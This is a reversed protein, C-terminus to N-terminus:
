HHLPVCRLRYWAENAHLLKGEANYEFVGVDSMEMMTQISEWRANLNTHPLNRFTAAKDRKWLEGMVQARSRTFVPIRGNGMGEDEKAEEGLRQQDQEDLNSETSRVIKWGGSSEAVEAKWLRGGFDYRPKFEGLAQTWARFLLAAKDQALVQDRLHLKRFAENCFLLDFKLVSEGTRIVFLPAKDFELGELDLRSHRPKASPMRLAEKNGRLL